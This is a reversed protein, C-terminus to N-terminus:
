VQVRLREIVSKKHLKYCCALPVLTAIALLPIMCLIVPMLTFDWIFFGEFITSMRRVITFSTLVSLVMGYVIGRMAYGWGELVLTIRQQRDTMGVAQLMALERRRVLVSTAMANVFNLIGIVALVFCLAGGVVQFIILVNWFADELKEKSWYSLSNDINMTYNEVWEGVMEEDADDVNFVTYMPLYETAGSHNMFETTPLIYSMKWGYATSPCFAEPLEVVALVEYAKETGNGYRVIERGDLKLYSAMEYSVTIKDGPHFLNLEGLEGITGKTIYIGEGSLWKETDLEGEVLVLYQSLWEDIGYVDVYMHEIGRSVCATYEDYAQKVVDTEDDLIRDMVVADWPQGTSALYINGISEVEDLGELYQSIEKPVSSINQPVTGNIVDADSVVFDTLTYNSIFKDFNFSSIISYVGNLIVISLACSIAVIRVKKKNRRLNRRALWFLSVKNFSDMGADNYSYDTYNLAEVPSVMAALKAPKRCSLYVTLLSLVSAGFFILFCDISIPGAYQYLNIAVLNSLVRGILWGLLLGVPIGMVSVQGARAYVLWRLQKATAGITKLRGYFQISRAVSIYFVNYILLCGALLVIVTAGVVTLMSSINSSIEYAENIKIENEMGYKTAIEKARDDLNWATPLMFLASIRRSLVDQNGVEQVEKTLEAAYTDSILITQRYSVNDGEWIGCLVFSDSIIDESTDISFSLRIETGIEDPIGLAELVIRSTAIENESEPLHGEEPECYDWIASNTDKWWVEAPIKEFASGVADGIYIACGVAEWNQDQSIASYEDITIHKLGAHAYTGTQRTSSERMVDYVSMSVMFISTFLVATLAIAIISIYKEGAQESHKILKKKIQGRRKKKTM